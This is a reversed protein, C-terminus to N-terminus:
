IHILSLVQAGNSGGQAGLVAGSITEFCTRFDSQRLIAELIAALRGLIVGLPGPGGWSAGLDM